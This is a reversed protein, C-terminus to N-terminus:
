LYVQIINKLEKKKRKMLRGGPGKFGKKRVKLEWLNNECKFEIENISNL